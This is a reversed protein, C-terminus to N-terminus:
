EGVQKPEGLRKLCEGENMGAYYYNPLSIWVAAGRKYPANQVLYDEVQALTEMPEWLVVKRRDATIITVLYGEGDLEYRDMVILIFLSSACVALEVGHEGADFANTLTGRTPLQVSQSEQSEQEVQQQIHHQEEASSQWYTAIDAM